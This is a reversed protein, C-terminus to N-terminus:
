EDVAASRVNITLAPIVDAPDLALHQIRNAHDIITQRAKHIAEPADQPVAPGERDADFSLPDLRNLKRYAEIAKAAQCVSEALLELESRACMISTDTIFNCSAKLPNRFVLSVPLVIM